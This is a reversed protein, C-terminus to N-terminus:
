GSIYSKLFQNEVALRELQNKVLDGLSVIGVLRGESLVPLHRIRHQTMVGMAEEVSDSPSATLLRTTMIDAVRFDSLAGKSSASFRLIDRETVIGLLREGHTLDRQCVLLAGVNRRVMEQTAEQLTFEPPITFVTSGKAKLIDLLTM